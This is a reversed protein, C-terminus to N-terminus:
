RLPKEAQALTHQYTLMVNHVVFATFQKADVSGARLTDTPRQGAVLGCPLDRIPRPRERVRRPQHHCYGQPLAPLQAYAVKGLDGRAGLVQDRVVQADQTQM